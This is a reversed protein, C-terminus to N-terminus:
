CGPATHDAGMAMRDATGPPCIQGDTNDASNSPTTRIANDASRPPFDKSSTSAHCRWGVPPRAQSARCPARGPHRSHPAAVGGHVHHVDVNSSRRIYSPLPGLEKFKRRGPRAGPSKKDHRQERRSPASTLRNFSGRGM